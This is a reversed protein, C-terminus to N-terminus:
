EAIVLSSEPDVQVNYMQVDAAHKVSVVHLWRHYLAFKQHPMDDKLLRKRVQFMQCRPCPFRMIRSAEFLQGSAPLINSDPGPYCCCLMPAVM